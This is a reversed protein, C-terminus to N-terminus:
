LNTSNCYRLQKAGQAAEPSPWAEAWLNSDSVIARRAPYCQQSWGEGPWSAIEAWPWCGTVTVHRLCMAPPCQLGKRLASPHVLPHQPLSRDDQRLLQEVCAAHADLSRSSPRSGRSSSVAKPAFPSSVALIWRRSCNNAKSVLSTVASKSLPHNATKTSSMSRAASNNAM